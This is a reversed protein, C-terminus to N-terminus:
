LDRVVSTVLNLGVSIRSKRLVIPPVIPRKRPPLRKEIRSVRTMM